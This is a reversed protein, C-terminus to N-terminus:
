THMARYETPTMGVSASFRKAFYSADSFGCAHAIEGIGADSEILMRKAKSLRLEAIYDSVTTGTERKFLHALYYRSIGISEAIESVSIEETVHARAFDCVAAIIPSLERETENVSRLLSIIREVTRVTEDGNNLADILGDLTQSDLKHLNICNTPYAEFIRRLLEERPYSEVLTRAVTAPSVGKIERYPNSEEDYYKGLKSAVRALYSEANVLKGAMIDEETIKAVLIERASAYADKLSKKFCGRERDYTVYIFGDRETADPYSSQDRADLLLKWKWTKGEDDSLMAHLNNRGTFAYHNILLLRGSQLRRIHFRACPGGLGSDRGEGWHLGRDYSYSVGIGYTTRVFMALTGDCLELIMHEDFARKPVDAGGLREFSAGNDSTRYAFALREGMDTGHDWHRIRNAESWVAIPFLWEGTSLVTPKNMMVDSGIIFEDGWVLVEADPNDCIVAHVANNPSQAWWFWLRGLPDIWLCPDYCRADGEVFAVAIPETYRIGDNSVILMCYNGQGEMTNGSYFTLYVRGGATVEISPIGQWLRRDTEYKRLEERDTILM